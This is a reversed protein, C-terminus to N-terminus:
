YFVKKFFAKLEDNSKTQLLKEIKSFLLTEVSHVSNTIKAEHKTDITGMVAYGPYIAYINREVVKCKFYYLKEASTKWIETQITEGM